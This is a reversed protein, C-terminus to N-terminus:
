VSRASIHSLEPCSVGIGVTCPESVIRRIGVSYPILVSSRIRIFPRVAVEKCSEADIINSYCKFLCDLARRFVPSKKSHQYKLNPNPPSAGAPPSACRPKTSTRAKTGAIYGTRGGYACATSSRRINSATCIAIANRQVDTLWRGVCLAHHNNHKLNINIPTIYIEFLTCIQLPPARSRGYGRRNILMPLLLAGGRCNKQLYASANDGVINNVVCRRGGFKFSNAATPQRYVPFM